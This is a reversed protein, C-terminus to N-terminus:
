ISFSLIRNLVCKGLAKKQGPVTAVATYLVPLFDVNYLEGNRLFISM